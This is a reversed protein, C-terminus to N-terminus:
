ITQSFDRFNKRIGSGVQNGRGSFEMKNLNPLTPKRSMAAIVKLKPLNSQMDDAPTSKEAEGKEAEGEDQARRRLRELQRRKTELSHKSLERRIRDYREEKARQQEKAEEKVFEQVWSPEGRKGYKSTSPDPPRTRPCDLLWHLAACILSLSKGTGTPSELLSVCGQGHNLTELIATMLNRQNAYPTFPFPIEM